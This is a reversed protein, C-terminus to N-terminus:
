WFLPIKKEKKRNEFKKKNKIKKENKRLGVWLLMCLLRLEMYICIEGKKVGM